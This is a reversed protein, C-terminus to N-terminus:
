QAGPFECHSSRLTAAVTPIIHSRISHVTSVFEYRARVHVDSTGIVFSDNIVVVDGSIVEWCSFDVPYSFGNPGVSVAGENATLHVLTGTTGVSVDASASANSHTASVTVRYHAVSNDLWVAYLVTNESVTITKGDIYNTGSGDAKTNWGAFTNGHCIFLIKIM